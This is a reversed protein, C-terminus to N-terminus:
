WDAAKGKERDSSVPLDSKCPTSDEKTSAWLADALKQLKLFAGERTGVYLNVINCTVLPSHVLHSIQALYFFCSFP